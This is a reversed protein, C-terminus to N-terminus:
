HSEASTGPVLLPMFVPSSGLRAKAHNFIVYIAWKQDFAQWSLLQQQVPPLYTM